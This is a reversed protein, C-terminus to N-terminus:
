IGDLQTLQKMEGKAFEPTGPGFVCPLINQALKRADGLRILDPRLVEFDFFQRGAYRQESVPARVDVKRADEGPVRVTRGQPLEAWSAPFHTEM